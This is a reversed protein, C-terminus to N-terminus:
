AHLSARPEFGLVVYVQCPLVHRYELGLPDSLEFDVEPRCYAWPSGPSCRLFYVLKTNSHLVGPLLPWAHAEGPVDTGQQPQQTLRQM